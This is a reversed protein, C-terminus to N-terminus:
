ETVEEIEIGECDFVWGFGADELEKRTFTKNNTYDNYFHIGTETENLYDNLTKLKVRYRKEKEITYGDLWARAFTEQNGDNDLWEIVEKSEKFYLDITVNKIATRLNFREVLQAKFIWDAVLKPIVTEKEFHILSSPLAVTLDNELKVISRMYEEDLEYRDLVKVKLIADKLTM